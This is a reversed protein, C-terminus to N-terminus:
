RFEWRLAIETAFEGNAGHSALTPRAPLDGFPFRFWADAMSLVHVSVAAWIARDRRNETSTLDDYAADRDRRTAAIEEDTVAAEYTEVAAEYAILDDGFQSDQSFAYAVLSAEAVFWAIGTRTRDGYHSGWGPILASRMLAGRKTKRHLYFILSEGRIPRAYYGATRSMYGRLRAEVEHKGEVLTIPPIPARGILNGDVLIEAGLPARVTLRPEDARAAPALAAVTAVTAILFACVIGCARRRSTAEQRNRARSPRNRPQDYASNM